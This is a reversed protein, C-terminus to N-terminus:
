EESGRLVAAPGEGDVDADSCVVQFKSGTESVSSHVGLVTYATWFACVLLGVGAMVLALQRVSLGARDMAVGAWLGGACECVQLM